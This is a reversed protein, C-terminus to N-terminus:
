RSLALLAKDNNGLWVQYVTEYPIRMREALEGFVRERILSDDADLTHYVDDGNVMTDWLQSFTLGERIEKGMEDTPHAQCYWERVTSIKAM